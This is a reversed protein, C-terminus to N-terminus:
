QSITKKWGNGSRTREIGTQYLAGRCDAPIGKTSRSRRCVRGLPHGQDKGRHLHSKNLPASGCAALSLALSLALLTALIKNKM